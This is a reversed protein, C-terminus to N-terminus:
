YMSKGYETPPAYAGAPPLPVAQAGGGPYGAGPPAYGGGMNTPYYGDMGGGAQPMAVAVAGGPAGMGMGPAMMAGGAVTVFGGAGPLTAVTAVGGMMGAALIAEAALLRRGARGTMIVMMMVLAAAVCALIYGIGPASTFGTPAYNSLHSSFSLIPGAPPPALISLSSFTSHLSCSARTACAHLQLLVALVSAEGIYMAWALMAFIQAVLALRMVTLPRQVLWAAVAMNGTGYTYPQWAAVGLLVNVRRAMVLSVAGTIYALVISVILCAFVAKSRCPSLLADRAICPTIPAIPEHVSPLPVSLRRVRRACCSLALEVTSQSEPRRGERPLRLARQLACSKIKARPSLGACM